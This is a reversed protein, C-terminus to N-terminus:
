REFAGRPTFKRLSAKCLPSCVLPPEGKQSTIKGKVLNKVPISAGTYIEFVEECKFEKWKRDTLRM